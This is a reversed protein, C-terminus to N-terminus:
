GREEKPDNVELLHREFATPAISYACKYMAPSAEDFAMAFRECSERRFNIPRSSEREEEAIALRNLAITRGIHRCGTEGMGTIAVGRNVTGDANARMAVAGVIERVKLADGKKTVVNKNARVYYVFAGVPVTTKQEKRM